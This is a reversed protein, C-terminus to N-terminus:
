VRGSVDDETIATGSGTRRCRAALAVLESRFAVSRRREPRRPTLWPRLRWARGVWAWGSCGTTRLPFRRSRRMTEVDPGPAAARRRPRRLLLQEGDLLRGALLGPAHPAVADRRLLPRQGRRHGRDLTAGKAPTACAACSTARSRRSLNFYSSGNYGYPGFMTFYNPFGPVGVGEYAQHRNEAWWGELDPAAAAACPTSPSTAPTSSRSARRSCSCTSRTSPAARPSSARRGHDARDADDRAHRERPQLDRPVRQPLEAAQLGPRLAAHAQGAAGPRRGPKRINAAHRSSSCAALAPAPPPLAGSRPLDARRAGPQGAAGATATAPCAASCGARASPCRGTSSPFAGSRRASSSPSTRSTRRRCGPDAPRGLRRHRHGRRAQGQLDAVPGLARHAGDHRRVVRRGRHGAAQAAHARRDRRDRPSRHARRRRPRSAGSTSTRTSRRLPSARASARAPACGMASPATSRTTACSPARARLRAVLRDANAFSFQYSFSPIDVAIGPYRNWYWTGGFGDGEEVILYDSLGARDLTIAM